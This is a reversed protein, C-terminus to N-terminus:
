RQMFKPIPIKEFLKLTGKPMMMFLGVVFVMVLLVPDGPNILLKTVGALVILLGVCPVAKKLFKPTSKEYVSMVVSAPHDKSPREPTMEIDGLCGRLSM